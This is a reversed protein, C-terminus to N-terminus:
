EVIHEEIMDIIKESFKSYAIGFLDRSDYIHAITRIEEQITRLVNDVTAQAIDMTDKMNMNTM